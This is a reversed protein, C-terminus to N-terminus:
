IGWPTGTKVLNITHTQYPGLTFYVEDGGDPVIELNQLTFNITM